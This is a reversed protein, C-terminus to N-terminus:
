DDRTRLRFTFMVTPEDGIIGGAATYM